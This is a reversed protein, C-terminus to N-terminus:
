MEKFDVWDKVDDVADESPITVKSDPEVDITDTLPFTTFNPMHEPNIKVEQKM